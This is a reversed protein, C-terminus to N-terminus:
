KQSSKKAINVSKHQQVCERVFTVGDNGESKQLKKNTCTKSEDKKKKEKRKERRTTPPTHQAKV